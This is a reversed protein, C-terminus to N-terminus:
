RAAVRVARNSLGRKDYGFMIGGGHGIVGKHFRFAGHGLRVPLAAHYQVGTGLAYVILLPLNGPHQFQRRFPHTGNGRQHAAAKAAFLIHAHLVM